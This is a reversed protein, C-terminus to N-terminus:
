EEGYRGRGGRGKYIGASSSAGARRTHFTAGTAHRHTLEPPPRAERSSAEARRKEGKGSLKSLQLLAAPPDLESTDHARGTAKRRPTQNTQGRTSALFPLLLLRAPRAFPQSPRPTDAAPYRAPLPVRVHPVAGVVQDGAWMNLAAAPPTTSAVRRGSSGARGVARARESQGRRERSPNRPSRPPSSSADVM